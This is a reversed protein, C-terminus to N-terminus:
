KKNCMLLGCAPCRRRRSKYPRVAVVVSGGELRASKVVTQDLRLASRLIKDM